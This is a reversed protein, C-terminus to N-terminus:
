IQFLQYFPFDMEMRDIHVKPHCVAAEIVKLDAAALGAGVPVDDLVTGVFAQQM